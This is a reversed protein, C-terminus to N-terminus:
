RLRGYTHNIANKRRKFPTDREISIGNRWSMSVFDWEFTEVTLKLQFTNFTFQHPNFIVFPALYTCNTFLNHSICVLFFFIVLNVVILNMWERENNLKLHYIKMLYKMGKKEEKQSHCTNLKSKPMWRSIGNGDWMQIKMLFIWM